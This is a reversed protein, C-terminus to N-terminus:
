RGATLWRHPPRGGNVRAQVGTHWVKSAFPVCLRRSAFVIVSSAAFSPRTSRCRQVVTSVRRVRRRQRRAFRRDVARMKGAHRVAFALELALHQLQIAVAPRGAARASPRCDGGATTAASACVSLPEDRPMPAQCTASAAAATSTSAAAPRSVAADTRAAPTPSGRPAPRSRPAAHPRRIATAGLRAAIVSQRKGARATIPAARRRVADWGAVGIWGVVM